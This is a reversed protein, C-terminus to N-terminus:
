SCALCMTESRPATGWVKRNFDDNSFLAARVSPSRSPPIHSQPSTHPNCRFLDAPIQSAMSPHTRSRVSHSNSPQSPNQSLSEPQNHGPIWSLPYFKIIAVQTVDIGGRFWYNGELRLLFCILLLSLGQTLRSDNTNLLIVTIDLVLFYNNPWFDKYLDRVVRKYSRCRIQRKEKERIVRSFIYLLCALSKRRAHPPLGQLSGGISIVKV